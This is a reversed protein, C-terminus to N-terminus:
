CSFSLSSASGLLARDRGTLLGAKLERDTTDSTVETLSLVGGSHSGSGGNVQGRDQLVQAGLNEFQSSVGGTVVLLATDDGTVDSKSDLVVLFEVLKQSIDSNGSSTDKWVDVGDQKGLLTLELASGM